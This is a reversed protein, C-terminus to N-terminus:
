HAHGSVPGAVYKVVVAAVTALGIIALPVLVIILQIPIAEITHKVFYVLQVLELM